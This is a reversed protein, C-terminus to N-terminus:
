LAMPITMPMTVSYNRFGSLIVPDQALAALVCFEAEACFSRLLQERLLM